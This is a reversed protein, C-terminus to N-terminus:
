EPTPLTLDPAPTLNQTTKSEYNKSKLIYVAKSIFGTKTNVWYKHHNESKFSQLTNFDAEITEHMVGDLEEQNCEANKVTKSNETQNKINDKQNQESDMTRVTKWTKGNDSSTFMKNNYALTRPQAPDPLVTMWHGLKVYYFENKSAIGGKPETVIDIKVPTDGNGNILLNIFKEQCNDAFVVQTSTVLMIAAIIAQRM